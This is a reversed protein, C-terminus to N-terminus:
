SPREEPSTGQQGHAAFVELMTEILLAKTKATAIAETL